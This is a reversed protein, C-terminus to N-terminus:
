SMQRVPLWANHLDHIRVVLDKVPWLRVTIDQAPLAGNIHGGQGTETSYGHLHLPHGPVSVVNQVTPNVAYVGTAQWPEAEARGFHFGAQAMGEKGPDVGGLPIHCIAQYDVGSFAGQLHVGALGINEKECRDHIWEHVGDPAMTTATQVSGPDCVAVCVFPLQPRDDDPGVAPSVLPQADGSPRDRVLDIVGAPLPGNPDAWLFAPADVSGEIMLEGNRRYWNTTGVGALPWDPPFPALDELVHELTVFHFFDGRLLREVTNYALLTSRQGRLATPAEAPVVTGGAVGDAAEAAM